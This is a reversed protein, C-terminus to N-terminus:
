NIVYLDTTSLTSIGNLKGLAMGLSIIETDPLCESLYRYLFGNDIIITNKNKLPGLFIEQRVPPIDIGHALAHIIDHGIDSMCYIPKSKELLRTVSELVPTNEQLAPGPIFVQNATINDNDNSSHSDTQQFQIKNHHASRRLTKMMAHLKIDQPCAAECAGCLICAQAALTLEEDPAQHQYARACAKPTLHVDRTQQWTPCVVVCLSCGHCQLHDALHGDILSM